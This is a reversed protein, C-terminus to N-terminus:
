QKPLFIYNFEGTATKKDAVWKKVDAPKVPTGAKNALRAEYGQQWFLNFIAEFDPNLAGPHFENLCIEILWAPRPSHVLVKAAGKLVGYEAGEVDIKIFLKKGAFRGGIVNDLTNVPIVKKIRESYGAWGKVLSASPGSAGYLSLFGPASSLGLPYVETDAWNNNMLNAYLCELNQAQPEFAVVSKGLFRALCAYYGINAGVDVFVEASGLQGKITELEESEFTGELMLRNAIYNRSVMKFGSPTSWEVKSTFIYTNCWDSFIHKEWSLYTCTKVWANYLGLKKAIFKLM